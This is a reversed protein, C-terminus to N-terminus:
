ISTIIKNNSKFFRIKKGNIYKFGVRDPKKIDSNFIAINSIHILSEKKIIGASVKKEPIAKQHKKVLNIGKIIVKKKDPSVFKIVGVKGKHKGSIIMVRDLSRIKVAM